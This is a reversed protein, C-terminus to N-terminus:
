IYPYALRLPNGRFGRHLARKKVMRLPNGGQVGWGWQLDSTEYGSRAVLCPRWPRGAYCPRSSLFAIKAQDRYDIVCYLSPWLFNNFYSCRPTRESREAM